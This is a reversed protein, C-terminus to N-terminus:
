GRRQTRPGRRRVTSGLRPLTGRIVPVTFGFHFKVVCEAPSPTSLSINRGSNTLTNPTGNDIKWSTPRSTSFRRASQSLLTNRSLELLGDRGEEGFSDDLVRNGLLRAAPQLLVPEDFGRSRLSPRPRSGRRARSARPHRPPSDTGFGRHPSRSPRARLALPPHPPNDTGFGKLTLPVRGAIRRRAHRGVFVSGGESVRGAVRTGAKRTAPTIGQNRGDPQSTGETTFGSPAQADRM